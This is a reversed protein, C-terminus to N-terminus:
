LKYKLKVSAGYYFYSYNFIPNIQFEPELIFTPSLKITKGVKFAWGIYLKPDISYSTLEVNGPKTKDSGGVFYDVTVGSSVNVIDSYYKYLVPLSM